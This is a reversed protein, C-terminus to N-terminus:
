PRRGAARWRSSVSGYARSGAADQDGLRAALGWRSAPPAAAAPAHARQIAVFAAAIAALMEGDPGATRERDM